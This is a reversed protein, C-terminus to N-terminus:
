LISKKVKNTEQENEKECYQTSFARLVCLIAGSKEKDQLFYLKASLWFLEFVIKDGIGFSCRTYDNM